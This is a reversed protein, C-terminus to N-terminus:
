PRKKQLGPLMSFLFPILITVIASASMFNAIVMALYAFVMLFVAPSLGLNAMRATYFSLLDTRQLAVGLSLGGAVLFLTEWPLTRVDKASVIGTLTLLVLPIATVSAVAINLRSGTLWLLITVILVVVVIRRDRIMEPTM